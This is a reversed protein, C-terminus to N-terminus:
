NGKGQTAEPQVNQTSNILPEAETKTTSIGLYRQAKKPTLQTIDVVVLGDVCDNFDPDRNFCAFCVGGPKAVDAYQKLLTPVNVGMNALTHKLLTFEKKYNNGTFHVMPPDKPVVPTLPLAYNYNPPFYISYFDILLQVAPAPYAGSISVPGFLYRYQPYRQIFAGIGVWLYDLSRKGWYRPQVFSRGLELGQNFIIQAADQYDFLTSSYLGVHHGPESLVSADGFRYAGAIELDNDDWLVLHLYHSDFVDVDRRKNSGEGVARFAIERLRGIERMIISSDDHRYLYIHKGDTTEGLLECREKIEQMLARREEPLAIPSQTDFILPKDSAIRYLHKKFLRTLDKTSFKLHTFASVPIREGIRINIDSSRQNFMEKVLLASAMPKFLMSVSYFLPSNKAAIYIPLIPTDTFKALKIFGSHWHTDRVGQPRLRSVEAAPFIILVGSQQQLFQHISQVSEKSTNSQNSSVSILMRHLPKLTMLHENALVKIDTRVESVLKILALADLSGIPHNAIIIVRGESPINEKDSNRTSFSFAFYDLVQEVFDIGTLHPYAEAFDLMEKEHLLRRLMFKAPPALLKNHAIRPYYKELLEDVKFM